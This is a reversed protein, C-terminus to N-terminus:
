TLLQKLGRLASGPIFSKLYGVAVQLDPAWALAQRFAARADRQRYELYRLHGLDALSSAIRARYQRQQATTLRERVRQFNHQQLKVGDMLYKERNRTISNQHQRYSSLVRHLYGMKGHLGLRIWLDTDDCITFQTDYIVTGVPLRHRAILVSQTHLAGTILSQYIFFDGSCDFWDDALRTLYSDAGDLFKATTLYTGPLVKGGSDILRLDHFAAVWEPHHDLGDVLQWTREADYLDDHDLFCVYDGRAAAIGDNKPFSPRGSNPRSIVRVRSDRRAYAQAMELTRDSSGDNVVILELDTKRQALVSDISESIYQEGNFVPMVVSVKPM